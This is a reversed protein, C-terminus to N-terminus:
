EGAAVFYPQFRAIFWRAYDAAPIVIEGVGDGNVQMTIRIEQGVSATGATIFDFNPITFTPQYLGAAGGGPVTLLTNDATQGERAIGDYGIGDGPAVTDVNTLGAQPITGSMPNNEGFFLSFGNGSGVSSAIINGNEMRVTGFRDNGQALVSNIKSVLDGVSGAPNASTPEDWPQITIEGGYADGNPKTGFVYMTLDTGPTGAGGKFITLDQLRTEETALSGTVSNELQFISSVSNGRLAEAQSSLNGQFNVENTRSPPFSANLDINLPIGIQDVNQSGDPNTDLNYTNGIVRMGTGQHIMNNESDIGFTGVRTYFSRTGDTVEFFGEGQIALDLNRGTALLAGQSMDVGVAATNVGLGVQQPNRGGLNTGPSSGTFQTQVLSTSFSVRSSKFGPTNTNALNNAIVDLSLQNNLMGTVGATLSRMTM